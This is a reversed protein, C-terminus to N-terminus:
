QNCYSDPLPLDSSALLFTLPPYLHKHGSSNFFYQKLSIQPVRVFKQIEIPINSPPSM